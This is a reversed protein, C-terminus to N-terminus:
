PADALGPHPRERHAAVVRDGERDKLAEPLTARDPEDMDVGMAVSPRPDVAGLEMVAPRKALGHECAHEIGLARDLDADAARGLCEPPEGVLGPHRYKCM